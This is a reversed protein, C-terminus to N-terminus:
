WMRQNPPWLSEPAVETLTFTAVDACASAVTIELAVGDGAFAYGHSRM